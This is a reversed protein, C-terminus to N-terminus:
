PRYNYKPQINRRLAKVWDNDFQYEVIRVTMRQFGVDPDYNQLKWKNDPSTDGPNLRGSWVATVVNSNNKTNIAVPNDRQDYAEIELTVKTIPLDDGINRVKILLRGKGDIEARTIKMAHSYDGIKVRISTQYGGDETTGTVITEGQRVGTIKVRNREKPLVEVTAISEDASEWTMNHNTGKEPIVKAGTTSTQGVDIYATNRKMEVGEVHQLVKVKIRARRNSGDTTIADVYAEGFSVGTVTGDASVTLIKNNASSFTLTQNSANAPEITWNLRASEGAYVAPADGFAVSKVPQQVHVTARAQVTGTTKSTCIIECDGLSVGTVRGQGNVTAIKEDSSSWVVSKDNTDQPLVTAKLMANRGTDVTLETKDLTINEANQVVQFSLNARINSGDTAAAIIRANGRKVGTVNGNEDVTAIREDASSWVVKKRTADEPLFSATLSITSGVGVTKASATVSIRTVQQIVVVRYRVTASPDQESAVTLLTEGPKLGNVNNGQVRIIEANEATLVVRKNRVSRPLVNVQLQIGRRAPIVLVPYGDAKAQEADALLGDLYPDDAAYLPLRATNAVELTVAESGEGLAAMCGCLMALVLLSVLIRKM